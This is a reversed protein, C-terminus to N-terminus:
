ADNGSGARTITSVGARGAVVVETAMGLFLGHARVAAREDLGAALAAPDTIGGAFVCDLIYNGNDTVFPIEGGRLRPQCDLGILHDREAQWAAPDVEVPLPARTGLRDVLKSDDVVVIFRRALREVAKECLLAGGLGKILDLHPDVEDAGDIALDVADVSGLPLLPIELARAQAATAASTALARIGTLKGERWLEGIRQVAHAATSGTGLGLVMGSRVHAVAICAAQRKLEDQATM